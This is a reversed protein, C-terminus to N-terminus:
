KAHMPNDNATFHGDKCTIHAVVCGVAFVAILHVHLVVHTDAVDSALDTSLAEYSFVREGVVNLTYM